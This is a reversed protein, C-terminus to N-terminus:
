PNSSTPTYSWSGINLAGDALMTGSTVTGGAAQVAEAALRAGRAAWMAEAHKSDSSPINVTVTFSAM